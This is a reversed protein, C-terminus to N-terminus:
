SRSLGSLRRYLVAPCELLAVGSQSSALGQVFITTAAVESAARRCHEPVLNASRLLSSGPAGEGCAVHLKQAPPCTAIARMQCALFVLTFPSQGVQRLRFPGRSQVMPGKQNSISLAHTLLGKGIASEGGQGM